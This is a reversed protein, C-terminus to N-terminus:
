FCRPYTPDLRDLSINHVNSILTGVFELSFEGARTLTCLPTQATLPQRTRAITM